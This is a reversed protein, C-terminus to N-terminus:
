IMSSILLYLMAAVCSAAAGLILRELRIENLESQHKMANLPNLIIRQPPSQPFEKLNCFKCSSNPIIKLISFGNLLEWEEEV